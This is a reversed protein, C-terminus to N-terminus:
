RSVFSMNISSFYMSSILCLVELFTLPLPADGFAPPLPSDGFALGLDFGLDDGFDFGSLVSGALGAGDDPLLFFLFFHSAM